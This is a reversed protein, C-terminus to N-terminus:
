LKSARHGCTFELVFRDTQQESLGQWKTKSHYVGFRKRISRFCHTQSHKDWCLINERSVSFRKRTSSSCSTWSINDWCFFIGQPFSLFNRTIYTEFRSYYDHFYANRYKVAIVNPCEVRLFSQNSCIFYIIRYLIKVNIQNEDLEDASRPLVLRPIGLPTSLFRYITIWLTPYM